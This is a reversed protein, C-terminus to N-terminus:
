SDDTCRGNWYTVLWQWNFGSIEGTENMGNMHRIFCGSKHNAKLMYSIPRYGNKNPEYVPRGKWDTIDCILTPVVGCFPCPLLTTEEPNINPIM